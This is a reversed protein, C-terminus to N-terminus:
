SLPEATLPSVDRTAVGDSAGGVPSAHTGAVAERMPEHQRELALMFPDDRHLLVRARALTEDLWEAPLVPTGATAREAAFWSSSDLTAM